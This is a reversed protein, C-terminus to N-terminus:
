CSSPPKGKKSSIIKKATTLCARLRAITLNLQDVSSNLRSITILDSTNSSPSATPSPRSSPTPTPVPTPTTSTANGYTLYSNTYLFKGTSNQSTDTLPFVVLQYTGPMLSAPIQFQQSYVGNKSDGSTLPVVGGALQRNADSPLDIVIVPQNALGSNSTITLTVTVNGGADSMQSQSITSSDLSPPTSDFGSAPAIVLTALGLVVFLSFTRRTRTKADM